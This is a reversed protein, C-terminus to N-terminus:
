SDASTIYHEIKKKTSIYLIESTTAYWTNNFNLNFKQVEDANPIIISSNNKFKSQMVEFGGMIISTCCGFFQVFIGYLVTEFLYLSDDFLPFITGVNDSVDIFKITWGPNIM